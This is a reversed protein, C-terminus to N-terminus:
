NQVEQSREFIIYVYSKFGSSLSVGGQMLGNLVFSILRRSLILIFNTSIIGWKVNRCPFNRLFGLNRPLAINSCIKLGKFGSNFGM